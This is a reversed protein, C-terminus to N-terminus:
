YCGGGQACAFVAVALLLGVATTKVGISYRLHLRTDYTSWSPEVSAYVGLAGHLSLGAEGYVGVRNREDHATPVVVMPGVAADLMLFPYGPGFWWRSRLGLVLDVSADRNPDNFSDTALVDLVPGLHLTPLTPTQFFYGAEVGFRPEFTRGNSVASLTADLTVTQKCGPSPFVLGIGVDKGIVCPLKDPEDARAARTSLLAVGAAAIATRKPIRM